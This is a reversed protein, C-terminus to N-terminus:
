WYRVICNMADRLPLKLNSVKLEDNKGSIIGYEIIVEEPNLPLNNVVVFGAMIAHSEYVIQDFASCSGYSKPTITLSLKKGSIKTEIKEFRNSLELIERLQKFKDEEKKEIQFHVKNLYYLSNAKLGKRQSLVKKENVLCLSKKVM